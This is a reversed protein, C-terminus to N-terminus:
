EIVGWDGFRLRSGTPLFRLALGRALVNEGLDGRRATFGLDAM